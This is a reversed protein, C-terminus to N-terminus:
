SSRVIGKRAPLLFFAEWAEGVRLHFRAFGAGWAEPDFRFTSETIDNDLCLSCLPVCKQDSRRIRFHRADECWTATLFLQHSPQIQSKGVIASNEVWNYEVNEGM